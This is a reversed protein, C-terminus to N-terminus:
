GGAGVARRGRGRVRTLLLQMELEAIRRGLCGRVGYGFPVSGFPHQGKLADTQNKRLWRQPQFRDPEPFISPDRSVVYHCLVFQTQLPLFPLVDAYPSHPPPHPPRRCPVRARWGWEREQSLPLWWSRNGQRHHGQLECAGCPLPQPSIFTCTQRQIWPPSSPWEKPWMGRTGWAGRGMENSVRAVAWCGGSGVRRQTRWVCVRAGPSPIRGCPRRLCLKSCLCTPWTRTSRCGGLLCWAWWRRM